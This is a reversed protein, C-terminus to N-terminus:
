VEMIGEVKCYKGFKFFIEHRDVSSMDLHLGWSTPIKLLCSKVDNLTKFYKVEGLNNM